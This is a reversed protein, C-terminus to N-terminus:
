FVRDDLCELMIQVVRSEKENMMSEIQQYKMLFIGKLHSMNSPQFGLITDVMDQIPQCVFLFCTISNLILCISEFQIALLSYVSSPQLYFSGDELRENDIPFGKSGHLFNMKSLSDSSSCEKSVGLHTSYEKCSANLQCMNLTVPYAVPKTNILQVQYMIGHHAHGVIMDSPDILQNLYRRAQFTLLVHLCVVLIFFVGRFTMLDAARRGNTTIAFLLYPLIIFYYIFFLRGAESVRDPVCLIHSDNYIKYLYMITLVITVLYTLLFLSFFLFLFVHSLRNFLKSWCTPEDKLYHNKNSNMTKLSNKSSLNFSTSFCDIFHPLSSTPHIVQSPHSSISEKKKYRIYFNKKSAGLIEFYGLRM